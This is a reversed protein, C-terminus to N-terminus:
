YRRSRVCDQALRKAFQLQRKSPLRTWALVKTWRPSVGCAADKGKPGAMGLIKTRAVDCKTSSMGHPM